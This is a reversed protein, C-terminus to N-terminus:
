KSYFYTFISFYLKLFLESIIKINAFLKSPLFISIIFFIFLLYLIITAIPSTFKDSLYVLSSNLLNFLTNITASNFFSFLISKFNNLKIRLFLSINLLDLISFCLLVIKISLLSLIPM